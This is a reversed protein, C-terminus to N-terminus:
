DACPSEPLFARDAAAAILRCVEPLPRGSRAAHAACDDHEPVARLLKDDEFLLKVRVPGFVTEITASQRRLKLRRCEDIRVGIASTERLLLRALDDTQEPRAIVTVRLGPRNKKMQLPTYGVDLAGAALLRDLLSGLWEAPTDDLHTEIVSVRDQELGSRSADRGLIGRLLNPRDELQWGGVGYGTREVTMTPLESFTALGAALAAGTPTVLERDCGAARVPHGKLIELTAPAPLPLPGHAGRTLGHSLPLPACVLRDVQLLHLGIVSGVIDVIADVAGVEHFHVQDLPVRHVHAEAEGLLRFVRRSGERVAAPLASEALMRDIASWSRHPQDEACAVRVRTGGIGHRLESGTNFTYGAVPLGALQARLAEPDVGLDILLGLLMDGSIGSFTDLYLLTM